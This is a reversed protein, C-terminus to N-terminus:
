DPHSGLRLEEIMKNIENQLERCEAMLRVLDAAQPANKGAFWNKVARHDSGIKHALRKPSFASRRLTAGIDDSLSQTTVATYMKRDKNVSAKHM